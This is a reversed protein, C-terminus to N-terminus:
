ILLVMASEFLVRFRIIEEHVDSRVFQPFYEAEKLNSHTKNKHYSLFM